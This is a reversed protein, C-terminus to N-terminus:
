KTFWNGSLRRRLLLIAVQGFLRGFTESRCNLWQYGSLLNPM